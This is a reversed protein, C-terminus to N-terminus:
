GAAPGPSGGPRLGELLHVVMRGAELDVERVVEEIAPLLLEEGGPGTVVYVDNAGTELVKELVGLAEGRESVVQLGLIQWHYYTDEPLAETDGGRLFVEQGRWEEARERSTLGEIALLYRDKHPKLFEVRGARKDEGM